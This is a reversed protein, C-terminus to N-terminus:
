LWELDEASFEDFSTSVSFSPLMYIVNISDESSLTYPKEREEALFLEEADYKL